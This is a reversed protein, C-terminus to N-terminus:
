FGGKVPVLSVPGIEQSIVGVGSDNMDDPGRFADEWTEGLYKKGGSAFEYYKNSHSSFDQPTKGLKNLIEKSYGGVLKVNGSGDSHVTVTNEAYICGTLLTPVLALAFVAKLVKRM